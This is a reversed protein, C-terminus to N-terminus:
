KEMKGNGKINLEMMQLLNEMDMKKIMKLIGKLNEEIKLLNKNTKSDKKLKESTLKLYNAKINNKSEALKDFYKHLKEKREKYKESNM